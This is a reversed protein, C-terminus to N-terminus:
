LKFYGMDRILHLDKICEDSSRRELIVSADYKEAWNLIAVIGSRALDDSDAQPQTAEAVGRLPDAYRQWIMGDTLTTHEDTGSGLPNKTDNLHFMIPYQTDLDTLWEQTAEYTTVPVNCAFLHATDVCLGIMASQGIPSTNFLQSVIKQTSELFTNLVETDSFRRDKSSNIEFWFRAISSESQSHEISSSESESHTRSANEIFYEGMTEKILTSVNEPDDAGNGFHIVIGDAHARAAMHMEKRIGNFAGYSLRKSSEKASRWPTNVYASHIYCPVHQTAIAIQDADEDTLNLKSNRPGMVFYQLCPRMGLCHIYDRARIINTCLPSAGEIGSHPIDGEAVSASESKPPLTLEDLPNIDESKLASECPSDNQSAFDSECVFNLEESKRVHIGITGRFNGDSFTTM